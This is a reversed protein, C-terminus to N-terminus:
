QVTECEVTTTLSRSSPSPYPENRDVGHCRLTDPVIQFGRFTNVHQQKKLRFGRQALMQCCALVHNSAHLHSKVSSLLAFFTWGIFRNRPKGLHVCVYVVSSPVPFNILFSRHCHRIPLIDRLVNGFAPGDRGISHSIFTCRYIAPVRCM